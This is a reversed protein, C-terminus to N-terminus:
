VEEIDPMAMMNALEIAAAIREEASIVEISNQENEFDSIRDLYEQKTTCNSFDCGMNRYLEIFDDYVAFIGGNIRGSGCVIDVDELGAVPYRQIWQEATLVEGIPTIIQEEKNWIKYKSM